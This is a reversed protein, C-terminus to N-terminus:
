LWKAVLWELEDKLGLIRQWHIYHTTIVRHPYIRLRMTYNSKQKTKKRQPLTSYKCNEGKIQLSWWNQTNNEKISFTEMPEYNTRQSLVCGGYTNLLLHLQVLWDILNIKSKNSVTHSLEFLKILIYRIIKSSGTGNMRSEKGVPPREMWIFYMCIYYM